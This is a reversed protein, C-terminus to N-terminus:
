EARLALLSGRLRSCVADLNPDDAARLERQATRFDADAKTFWERTTDNM